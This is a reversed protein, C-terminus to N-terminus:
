PENDHPVVLVTAANLYFFFFGTLFNRIQCNLDSTEEGSERLGPFLELRLREFVDVDLDDSESSYRSIFPQVMQLSWSSINFRAKVTPDKRSDAMVRGMPMTMSLYPGRFSRSRPLYPKLLSDSNIKWKIHIIAKEKGM